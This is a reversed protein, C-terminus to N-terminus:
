LSSVTPAKLNSFFFDPGTFTTIVNKSGVIISIDNNTTANYSGILINIFNPDTGAKYGEAFLGTLDFVTCNTFYAFIGNAHKLSVSGDAGAVVVKKVAAADADLTGSVNWPWGGRNNAATLTTLDEPYARIVEGYEGEDPAEAGNKVVLVYDGNDGKQCIFGYVGGDAAWAQVAIGFVLFFALCIIPVLAFLLTKKSVDRSTFSMMAMTEKRHFPHVRV